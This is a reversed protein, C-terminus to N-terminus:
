WSHAQQLIRFIFLAFWAGWGIFIIGIIKGFIGYKGSVLGVGCYLMGLNGILDVTNFSHRDFLVASVLLSGIMIIGGEYVMNKTTSDDM